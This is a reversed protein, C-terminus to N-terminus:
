SRAGLEPGPIEAVQPRPEDARNRGADDLGTRYLLEVKLDSAEEVKRLPTESRRSMSSIPAVRM